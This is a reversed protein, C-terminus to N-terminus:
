YKEEQVVKGPVFGCGWLSDFDCIWGDFYYSILFAYAFVL